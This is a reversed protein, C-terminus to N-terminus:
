EQTDYTISLVHVSKNTREAQHWEKEVSVIKASRGDLGSGFTEGLAPPAPPAKSGHKEAAEKASTRQPLYPPSAAGRFRILEPGPLGGLARDQGAWVFV